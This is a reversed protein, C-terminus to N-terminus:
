NSPSTAGEDHQPSYAGEDFAAQCQLTNRFFFLGAIAVVVVVPLKGSLLILGGGIESGVFYDCYNKGEKKAKLFMYTNNLRDELRPLLLNTLSKLMLPLSVYM